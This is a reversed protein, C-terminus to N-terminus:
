EIIRRFVYPNEYDFSMTESNKIYFKNLTEQESKILWEKNSVDIIELENNNRANLLLKLSPGWVVIQNKHKKFRGFYYKNDDGKFNMFYKNKNRRILVRRRQIEGKSIYVVEIESSDPDIVKVKVSEEGIIWTGNWGEKSILYSDKGLINNSTVTACATITIIFVLILFSKLPKM